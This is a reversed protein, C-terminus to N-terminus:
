PRTKRCQVHLCIRCISFQSKLAPSFDGGKSSSLTVCRCFGQQGLQVSLLQFAMHSKNGDISATQLWRRWMEGHGKACCMPYDERCKLLKKLLFIFVKSSAASVTTSRVMGEASHVPALVSGPLKRSSCNHKKAAQVGGLSQLSGGVQRLWAACTTGVQEACPFRKKSKLVEVWGWTCLAVVVRVEALLSM